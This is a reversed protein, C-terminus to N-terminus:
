QEDYVAQLFEIVAELEALSHKSVNFNSLAKTRLRLLTGVAEDFSTLAFNADAAGPSPPPEAPPLEPPPGDLIDDAEATARAQEELQEKLRKKAFDLREDGVRLREETARLWEERKFSMAIAQVREDDVRENEAAKLVAEIIEDSYEDMNKGLLYLATPQLKLHTVTVYKLAFRAASMYNQATSVSSGFNEKLWPLWQGHELADQAEILLDGIAIVDATERKLAIQLEGEIVKIDRAAKIM